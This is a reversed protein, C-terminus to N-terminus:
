IKYILYEIVQKVALDDSNQSRVISHLTQNDHMKVLISIVLSLPITSGNFFSDKQISVSEVSRYAGNVKM